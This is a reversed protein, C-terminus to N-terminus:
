RTPLRSAPHVPAQPNPRGAMNTTQNMPMVTPGPQPPPGQPNPPAGGMPLGQPGAAQLRNIGAIQGQAQLLAEPDLNPVDDLQKAAEVVRIKDAPNTLEEVKIPAFRPKRKEAELAAQIQIQQQMTQNHAAQQAMQVNQQKQMKDQDSLLVRRPDLNLYEAFKEILFRHNTEPDQGNLSIEYFRQLNQLQLAENDHAMSGTAEFDYEGQLQDKTVDFIQPAAQMLEPGDIILANSKNQLQQCLQGVKSGIASLFDEINSNRSDKRVNSRGEAISAETATNALKQHEFESLGSINGLDQQLMSDWQWFTAPLEPAPAMRIMDINNLENASLIDSKQLKSLQEKTGASKNYIWKPALRRIVAAQVSRLRVREWIHDEIPKFESFSVNSFPDQKAHLITIPFPDDKVEFEFPWSIDENLFSDKCQDHVFKREMRERDWVEWYTVWEADSKKEETRDPLFGDKEMDEPRMTPKIALPNKPDRYEEKINQTDRFEDITVTIRIAIWRAQRSRKVDPDVRVEEWYDLWKIRPQDKIVVEREVKKMAPLGNKGLIPLGDLGIDPVEDRVMQTEYDWGTYMAAPGFFSDFICDRLEDKANLEKFWYNTNYEMLKAARDLQPDKKAKVKVKPDGHFLAPLLTEVFYYIFNVKMTYKSVQKEKDGSFDGKYAKKYRVTEEREERYIKEVRKIRKIWKEPENLDDLEKEYAM